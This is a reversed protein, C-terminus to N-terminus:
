FRGVFLVGAQHTTGDVLPVVASDSGVADLILMTVGAATLGLGAAIGVTSVLAKDQASGVKERGQIGAADDVNCQMNPCLALAEDRDSTALSGFM